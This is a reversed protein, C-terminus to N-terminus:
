SVVAVQAVLAQLFLGDALRLVLALEPSGDPDRVYVDVVDGRMRMGSNAVLLQVQKSLWAVVDDINANDIRELHATERYQVLRANDWAIDLTAGEAQVIGRLPMQEYVLRSAVIWQDGVAM